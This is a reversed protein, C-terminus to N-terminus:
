FQVLNPCHPTQVRVRLWVSLQIYQLCAVNLMRPLFYVSESTLAFLVYDFPLRSRFKLFLSIPLSWKRSHSNCQFKYPRENDEFNHRKLCIHACLIDRRVLCVHEWWVSRNIQLVRKTSFSFDSNFLKMPKLRSKLTIQLVNTLPLSLLPLVVPQVAFLTLKVKKNNFIFKFSLCWM